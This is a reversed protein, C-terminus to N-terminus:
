EDTESPRGTAMRVATQRAASASGSLKEAPASAVGALERGIAPPGTSIFQIVFANM